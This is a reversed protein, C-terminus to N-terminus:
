VLIGNSKLDRHIIQKAHLYSHPLPLSAYSCHCVDFECTCAYLKLDHKIIVGIQLIDYNPFLKINRSYHQVIFNKRM